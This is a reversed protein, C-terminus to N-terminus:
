GEFAFSTRPATAGARVDKKARSTGGPV